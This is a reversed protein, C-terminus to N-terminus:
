KSCSFEAPATTWECLREKTLTSDLYRRAFAPNSLADVELGVLQSAFALAGLAADLDPAASGPPLTVELGLGRRSSHAARVLRVADTVALLFRGAALRCEPATWQTKGIPVSLRLGRGCPEGTAQRFGARLDLDVVFRQDARPSMKWGAAAVGATWAAWATDDAAPEPKRKAPDGALVHSAERFGRRVQDVSSATAWRLESRLRWVDGDITLRAGGRLSGNRELADWPELGPSIEPRAAFDTWEGRRTAVTPIPRGNGFDTEAAAGDALRLCRAITM